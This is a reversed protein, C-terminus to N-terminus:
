VTSKLQTEVTQVIKECLEHTAFIDTLDSQKGANLQSLWTDFMTVFGRKRLTNEWDGFGLAQPPQPPKQCFAMGGGLNDIQWKKDEAFVELREETIGSVRNMSGTLLSKGSMWHVQIASLEEPKGYSFVQLEKIENSSIFRLSDIVHIFDDYIYIRPAAPWRIRNKQLHAQVLGQCKGLPQILPAFRRNFGVTIPTNKQAALDLLEQTENLQYSIPKDVFVPIGAAVFQRAIQAHSETATHIMVADPRAALLQELSGFCDAIRYQRGLRELTDANRTCLMPKVQPHSAVIPLYAKCAIDGLGIMAIRM